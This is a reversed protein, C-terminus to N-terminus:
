WLPRKAPQGVRRPFRGPCDEVQRLVRVGGGATDVRGHDRLGLAALGPASWRGVVPVPPESVLLQGGAGLFPSACEATVAPPGFSRAVVADFRYRWRDERGAVEARARLVRVREGLELRAVMTVVFDTRRENADLLVWDADTWHLCALVLGPLGGGSGLDLVRAPVKLAAQAFASAHAVHDEVRGPGVFGRCQSEALQELVPRDM